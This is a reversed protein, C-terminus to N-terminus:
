AAFANQTLTLSTKILLRQAAFFILGFRRLPNVPLQLMHWIIMQKVLVGFIKGLV